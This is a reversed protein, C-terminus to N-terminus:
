KKHLAKKVDEFEYYVTGGVKTCPLIEKKRLNHLTSRSIRMMKCVEGSKLPTGPNSFSLKAVLLKEFDQLLNQRLNNLDEITLFEVPM